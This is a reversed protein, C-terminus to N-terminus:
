VAKPSDGSRRAAVWTFPQLGGVPTRHVERRSAIVTFDGGLATGLEEPSFRAVPLGSCSEPGDNAFAGIVVFGGPVLASRLVSGYANIQEAAGLFHFVARDHWLAYRRSPQWTLLDQVLWHVPAGPGLRRQAERVAVASADLVSVDTYEDALLRDVLVSAGGGVDVVPSSKAIGAEAILTLSIVPEAQFWSVGSFGRRRYTADWHDRDATSSRPPGPQRASKGITSM